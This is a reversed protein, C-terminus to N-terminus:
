SAPTYSPATAGDADNGLEIPSWATGTWILIAYDGVDAMVITADTNFTITADGDDVILQIKKLQGIIAGDALTFAQGTTGVSTIATYFSTLAIAGDANIAQQVATPVVPYVRGAVSSTIGALGSIRSNADAVVAKGAAVTGPTVGASAALQAATMTAGALNTLVKGRQTTPSLVGEQTDIPDALESLFYARGFGFMSAM